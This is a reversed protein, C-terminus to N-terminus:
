RRRTISIAGHCGVRVIHTSGEGGKVLIAGQGSHDLHSPRLPEHGAQDRADLALRPFLHLGLTFRQDPQKMAPAIFGHLRSTGDGADGNGVFGAAVAEPQRAPKIAAANLRMHDM